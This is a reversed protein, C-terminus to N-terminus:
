RVSSRGSRSRRRADGDEMKKFFADREAYLDRRNSRRRIRAKMARRAARRRSPAFCSTSRTTCMWCTASRIKPSSSTRDSAPGGPPSCASRSVGTAWTTSGPSTGAPGRTPMHRHVLRRDHQAPARRSARHRHQALLIRHRAEERPSQSASQPPTPAMTRDVIM